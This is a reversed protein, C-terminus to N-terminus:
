TLVHLLLGEGIQCLLAAALLLKTENLKRTREHASDRVQSGKRTKDPAENNQFLGFLNELAPNLGHASWFTLRFLTTTLRRATIDSLRPNAVAHVSTARLSRLLQPL